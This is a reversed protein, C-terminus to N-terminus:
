GGCSRGATPGRASCTGRAAPVIADRLARGDPAPFHFGILRAITPAVDALTAQREFVGPRIFGPGYWFMPVHQLYDWPGSHPFGAGLFNPERPVVTIEGSAGPEYGRWMRVLQAAPLERAARALPGTLPPLAVSPPPRSPVPSPSGTGPHVRPEAPHLGASCATFAAVLFVAAVIGLWRHLTPVRFRALAL